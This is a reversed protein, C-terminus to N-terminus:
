ADTKTKLFREPLAGNQELTVKYHWQFAERAEPLVVKRTWDGTAKKRNGNMLQEYPREANEQWFVYMFPGTLHSCADASSVIQVEIPAQTLDSEKWSDQIKIYDIAKQSIEKSFGLAILAAAGKDLTATRENATDVIKGYDHMWSMISILDRDAQPYFDALELAIKEVIALHWTAFWQHHIFSPNGSIKHLHQKLLTINEQM